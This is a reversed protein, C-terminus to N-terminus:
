WMWEITVGKKWQIYGLVDILYLIGQFPGAIMPPIGMINVLTPYIIAVAFVIKLFWIVGEIFVKVAMVFYDWLTPEAQFEQLQTLNYQTYQNQPTAYYNVAFLGFGNVIGIVLQLIILFLTIDWARM